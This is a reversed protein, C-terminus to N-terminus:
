VINNKVIDKFGKGAKFVPVVTAKITIEEQTSPNHGKHEARARAEFSGFGTIQIKENEAVTEEIAEITKALFLETDKKTFGSKESIVTVLESKNM